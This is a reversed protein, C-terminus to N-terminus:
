VKLVYVGHSLTLLNLTHSITDAATPLLEKELVLIETNLNDETYLTYTIKKDEIGETAGLLDCSYLFSQDKTYILDSQNKQLELDVIRISINTSREMGYADYVYMTVSTKMSNFLNKYKFLDVFDETNFPRQKDSTFFPEEADKLKFIIQSIYNDDTGNYNCKFRVKM